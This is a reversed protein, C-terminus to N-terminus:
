HAASLARARAILPEIPQTMDDLRTDIVGSRDLLVISSTHSFNKGDPLRRYQIGLLAALERVQDEPANALKWRADLGRESVVAHLAQPTDREPDFSVLLVRIDADAGADLGVMVRKITSVLIPCASPCTSYFMGMFVPEGRFVDLGIKAGDQDTLTMPLAYLSQDSRPSAAAAEVPPASASAPAAASAEVQSEAAQGHCAGVAACLLPALVAALAKM